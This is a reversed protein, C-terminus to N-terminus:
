EAREALKIAMIDNTDILKQADIGNRCFDRWDLNHRDFFSKTGDICYRPSIRLHRLYVIKM